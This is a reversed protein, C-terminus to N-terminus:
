MKVATEGEGSRKGVMGRSNRNLFPGSKISVLWGQCILNWYCQVGARRNFSSLAVCYLSLMGFALLLAWLCSSNVNNPTEWSSSVVCNYWIHLPRLDTGHLSGPQWNLRQSGPRLNRGVGKQNSILVEILHFGHRTSKVPGCRKDPKSVTNAVKEWLRDWGETELWKVSETGSNGIQRKYKRGEM